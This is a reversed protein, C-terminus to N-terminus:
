LSKDRVVKTPTPPPTQYKKDGKEHWAVTKPVQVSFHPEYIFVGGDQKCPRM